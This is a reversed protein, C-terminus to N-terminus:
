IKSFIKNAYKNPRYIETIDCGTPRSLKIYQTLSAKIV